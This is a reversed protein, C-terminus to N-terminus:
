QYQLDIIPPFVTQGSPLVAYDEAFVRLRSLRRSEHTQDMVDAVCLMTKCEVRRTDTGTHSGLTFTLLIVFPGLLSM